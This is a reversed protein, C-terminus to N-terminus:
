HCCLQVSHTVSPPNAKGTVTKFQVVPCPLSVHICIGQQPHRSRSTHGISQACVVSDSCHWYLGQLLSAEFAWGSGSFCIATVQMDQVQYSVSWLDGTHDSIIPVLGLPCVRNQAEHNHPHLFPVRLWHGSFCVLRGSSWCNRQSCLWRLSLHPMRCLFIRGFSDCPDLKLKDQQGHISPRTQPPTM